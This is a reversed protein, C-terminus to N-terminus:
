GERVQRGSRGNKGNEMAKRVEVGRKEENETGKGEKGESESEGRRM